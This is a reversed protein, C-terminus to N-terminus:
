CGDNGESAVCECNSLLWQDASHSFIFNLLVFSFFTWWIPKSVTKTLLNHQYHVNAMSPHLILDRYVFLIGFCRCLSVWSPNETISPALATFFSCSAVNGGQPLVPFQQLRSLILDKNTTVTPFNVTNKATILYSCYLTYYFSTCCLTITVSIHTQRKLGMNM